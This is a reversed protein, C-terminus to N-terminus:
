TISQTSNTYLSLTLVLLTIFLCIIVKLTDFGVLTFVVFEVAYFMFLMILGTKMDRTMLIISAFFTMLLILDPFAFGLNSVLTNVIEEYSM